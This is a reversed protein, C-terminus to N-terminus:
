LLCIEQIATQLFNIEGIGVERFRYECIAIEFIGAEVLADQFLCIQAACVIVGDVGFVCANFFGSERNM